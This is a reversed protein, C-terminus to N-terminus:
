PYVAKNSNPSIETSEQSEDDDSIIGYIDDDITIVLREINNDALILTRLNDLRNHRRHPCLSSAIQLLSSSASTRGPQSM